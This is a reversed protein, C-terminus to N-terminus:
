LLTKAAVMKDTYKKYGMLFTNSQQQKLDAYRM